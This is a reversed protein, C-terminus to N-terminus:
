RTSRAAPTCNPWARPQGTQENPPLPDQRDRPLLQPEQDALYVLMAVMLANRRVDDFSIKDYTDRNTHWTYTGYDWGLSGLGLGPAGHCIFSANDSGGGSPLGPDQVNLSDTVAPPMAAVWRRFIPGVGTLGQMSVNRIRGTGNDQNFLVHLGRVVEPHDESYARSGNLGQEEGSWHGVLITRNPRPYVESLIRMAEMMVITGTGNDTAGSSAEWSDFHASLMIYEDPRRSGRVEAITNSVPVSDGTFEARSDIRLTPDDGNAALRYVLGYDECSLDLTPIARTRAQFVKDVGWGQSWFSTLIGLAGAQELAVPLTQGTLGTRAVRQTWRQAASDRETRYRTWDAPVAWREWNDNPRCTPQPFSIMVFKGRVGPLWARFAVSDAVDPLLAVGADVPASTGPSWALMTGELTRVRPTLLDVHTYGRRWGRWTGYRENRAQIGWEGYKRIVWDQAAMMGPSATLRPGLSDLLAQALPELQSRQTGEEWIARLVPDSTTWEQAPLPAAALAAAALAWRAIKQM